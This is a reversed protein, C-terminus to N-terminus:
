GGWTLLEACMLILILVMKRRKDMVYWAMYFM